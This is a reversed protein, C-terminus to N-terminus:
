LALGPRQEVPEGVMNMDQLHIALAAAEVLASFPLFGWFVLKVASGTTSGAPGCFGGV